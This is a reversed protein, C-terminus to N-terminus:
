SGGGDKGGGTLLVSLLIALGMTLVPGKRLLPLATRLAERMLRDQEARRREEARRAAARMMLWVVLCGFLAVGLGAALAAIVGIVQALAVTALALGFVLALLAFVAMALGLGAREAARRQLAEVQGRGASVLLSFLAGM